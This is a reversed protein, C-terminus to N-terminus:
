AVVQSVEIAPIGESDGFAIVWAWYRVRGEILFFSDQRRQVRVPKIDPCGLIQEALEVPSPSFGLKNAKAEDVTLYVEKGGDGDTAVSIKSPELLFPQNQELLKDLALLDSDGIDIDPFVFNERLHATNRSAVIPVVAGLRSLWKLLLQPISIHLRAAIKGLEEEVERNQALRGKGLPSYALTVLSHEEAWPLARSVHFRDLFSMEVQSAVFCDEPILSAFKSLEPVSFNSVGIWRVKGVEVLELMAGATEELPISPNPWHVQLLDIYDTKLRRLSQEASKALGPGDLNEPSVKTALILDARRNQAAKGVIEESAGSAYAPATDILRYGMDLSKELVYVYDDESFLDREKGELIGGMGLAVKCDLLTELGRTTHAMKKGGELEIPPGERQAKGCDFQLNPERRM